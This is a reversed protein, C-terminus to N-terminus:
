VTIDLEPPPLPEENDRDATDAREPVVPQQKKKKDKDTDRDRHLVVEDNHTAPTAKRKADDKKQGESQIVQRQENESNAKQLQAIREV